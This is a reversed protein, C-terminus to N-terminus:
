IISLLQPTSFHLAISATLVNKDEAMEDNSM